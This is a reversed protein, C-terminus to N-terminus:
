YSCLSLPQVWLCRHTLMTILKSYGVSVGAPKDLVVFSDTEAIVRSPWDVEYVRCELFGWMSCVDNLNWLLLCM